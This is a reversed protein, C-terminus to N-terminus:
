AMLTHVADIVMDQQADTMDPFLPLSLAHAYYREANPFDGQKFGLRRYYPQTHIPIYHVNVGIGLARLGAFVTNRGIPTRTPDIEVAYLHWSPIRDPLRSPLRLPLESLEVDYRRALAERRVQMSPLRRLQSLGLAAQMETMRANYGLSQQEYVWAGEAPQEMRDPERTIGHSRLARLREAMADDHTTVMGGEGCTIVKVAHFSFVTADALASGVPRGLYHAGVSHSADALIRFGYRNALARIEQLDCSWGGHDVPIVVHPLCGRAEAWALKEGLADVSLNRSQPDTDVFDVTAGCYLACNASAVFSNPSTWVRSGPGVGMALCALHLGSTANSIAIAHPVAHLEAFALEFAPLVPGQTLFDSRLVDVVAAIDEECIGQRSYPLTIPAPPSQAQQAHRDASTPNPMPRSVSM